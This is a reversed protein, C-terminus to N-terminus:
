TTIESTFLTPISLSDNRKFISMSLPSKAKVLKAFVKEINDKRAQWLAFWRDGVDLLGKKYFGMTAAYKVVADEASVDLPFTANLTLDPKKFRAAIIIKDSVELDKNLHISDDYITCTFMRGESDTFSNNDKPTVRLLDMFITDSWDNDRVLLHVLSFLKSEAGGTLASFTFTSAATANTYEYIRYNVDTDM